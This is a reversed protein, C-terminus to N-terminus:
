SAHSSLRGKLADKYRAKVGDLDGDRQGVASAASVEDAFTKRSVASKNSFIEEPPNSGSGYQRELMTLSKKSKATQNASPSLSGNDPARSQAKDYSNEM